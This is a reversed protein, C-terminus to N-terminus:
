DAVVRSALAPDAKLCNVSKKLNAWCKETQDIGNFFDGIRPNPKQNPSDNLTIARMTECDKVRHSFQCTGGSTRAM